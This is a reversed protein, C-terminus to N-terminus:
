TKKLMNRFLYFVQSGVELVVNRYRSGKKDKYIYINIRYSRRSSVVHVVAAVSARSTLPPATHRRERRTTFVCCECAWSTRVCM